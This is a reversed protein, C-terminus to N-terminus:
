PMNLVPLIDLHWVFQVENKADTIGMNLLEKGIGNRKYADAVRIDWLVCADKRGSLMHMGETKGAVTMAGVPTEGDFAMYFRWNAIDFEKEYEAACAYQSLDKIYPKVQVEELILGGLGNDVRVVQYESRVDVNMSVKDYLKFYSRDVEKYIIM